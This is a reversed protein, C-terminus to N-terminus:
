RPVEAADVPPAQRAAWLVRVLPAITPIDWGALWELAARERDSLNLGDLPELLAAVRDLHLARRWGQPDVAHLHEWRDDRTDFPPRVARPERELPAPALALPDGKDATM